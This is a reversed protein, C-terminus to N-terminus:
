IAITARADIGAAVSDNVIGIGHIAADLIDGECAICVFCSICDHCAVIDTRFMREAVDVDGIPCM